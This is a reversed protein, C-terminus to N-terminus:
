KEEAAGIRIPIENSRLPPPRMGSWAARADGIVAYLKYEGAPLRETHGGKDLDVGPRVALRTVADGPPIVLHLRDPGRNFNQFDGLARHRGKDDIAVLRLVRHLDAVGQGPPNETEVDIERNAKGTNTVRVRAAFEEGPAFRAREVRLTLRLGEHVTGGEPWDVRDLLTVLRAKAEANKEAEIAKRLPEVAAAGAKEIEASARERVVPDASGLEVIRAELGEGALARAVILLVLM